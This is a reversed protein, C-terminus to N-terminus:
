VPILNVMLLSIVLVVQTYNRKNKELEDIIEMARIKPAGSVQAQQFALYCLRLCHFNITLNALLM